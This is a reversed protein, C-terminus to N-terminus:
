CPNSHNPKSQLESLTRQWAKGFATGHALQAHLLAGQAATPPEAAAEWMDEFILRTAGVALSPFAGDEVEGTGVIRLSRWLQNMASTWLRENHRGQLAAARRLSKTSQPSDDSLLALLERAEGYLPRLLPRVKCLMAQFLTRSFFVARGNYWKTYVVTRSSALRERLHWLKVVRDDAHEDWAWRMESGPYLESWLSRPEKRNSVPYVLLAGQREIAERATRENPARSKPM